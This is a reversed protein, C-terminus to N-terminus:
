KLHRALFTEMRQAFDIRNKVNGFGHGEGAYTVWVPENGADRLAKRMREGHALPVRRDDDAFALMVPAKIRAAQKVPSNAALMAADKVADGVAEPITYRRGTRSIDDQIWWSGTAYLDLDTVALWAVGCHYLAPDKALGMLTSYGGYSAGAICAKDSAIGQKQAWRLADAVDDQMAQGWQKFGARFHTDGYGTSGRFEPEIVVYGRSALFQADADWGWTNGRAWPGGHVLVVAPLPGAAAPSRTVWVPLELGDRAPIRQLEVIAMDDPKLNERVTGVSMWAKEGAKPKGQYLYFRGPDRDSFSRVLAVMDPTGCRRCSVLNSQGPFLRDVRAQFEKMAPDFWANTMADVLLRVGLVHGNTEDVVLDGSFDFGPTSVLPTDQPKRREFDYRKLARQGAPGSAESVYLGGADDVAEVSFPASLLDSEFLPTWTKSGPARWLAARRGQQRTFAVRLEGRSDPLWGVSGAPEVFGVNRMLGTRTNLWKPTETDDEATSFEAILVEDNRGGTPLRPVALVRHNWDLLREDVTGDTIVPKWQRRVLQRFKSGDANVAFLGPAGSYRASGDFTDVVGYILRDDDVWRADYVDGDRFRAVVSPKGGQDLDMVVLALRDVGKSTTLALKRGSPSLVVDVLEADKYFLEAPPPAALAASTLGMLALAACRLLRAM